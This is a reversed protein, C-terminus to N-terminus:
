TQGVPSRLHRILGRRSGSPTSCGAGGSTVMWCGAAATRRPTGSACGSPSRTTRLEYTYHLTEGESFGYYRSRIDASPDEGYRPLQYKRGPVPADGARRDSGQGVTHSDSCTRGRTLGHQGRGAPKGSADTPRVAGWAVCSSWVPDATATVHM